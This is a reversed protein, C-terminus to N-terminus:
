ITVTVDKHDNQGLGVSVQQEGNIYVEVKGTPVDDFEAVGEEDTYAVSHSDALGVVHSGVFNCHVRKGSVPAEDSDLVHVRLSGMPDTREQNSTTREIYINM